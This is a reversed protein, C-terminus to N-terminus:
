QNMSFGDLVDNLITDFEDIFAIRFKRRNRTNQLPTKESAIAALFKSCKLCLEREFFDGKWISFYECRFARALNSLSFMSKM